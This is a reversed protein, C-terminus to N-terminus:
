NVRLAQLPDIRSARMAPIAAGLGATMLILGVATAWIRPDTATLQYLYSEVFGVAWAAVASGVVLGSVVPACQERVLLVAVPPMVGVVQFGFGGARDVVETHGIVAPDSQYRNRWVDHLLIVPRITHSEQFDAAGFGGLWPRVGVVDFFSEQVLAVGAADDNVGRGFGGFPQARFATLRVSPIAAQWNALDVASISAPRPNPSPALGEFTPIVTVLQDADPYPLPRFLVGDVVAFTTTALAITVGIAGIITTAYWPSAKVSRWTFRMDNGM